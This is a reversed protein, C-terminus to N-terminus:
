QLKKNKILELNKIAGIPAIKINKSGKQVYFYYISNAELLFIEETDDSSYTLKYNFKLTNDKIKKSAMYGDTCGYGLYVSLLLVALFKITVLQYYNKIEDDSFNEKTKKLEFMKQVWKKHDHKYLISPLYYCFIIFLLITTFIVVHSTLTAIPSILIDMISSYKIINIDLQYFYTTEKIIGLVVLYLYGLPLLTQIKDLHKM